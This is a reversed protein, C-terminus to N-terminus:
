GIRRALDEAKRELASLEQLAARRAVPDTRGSGWRRQIEALRDVKMRLSELRIQSKWSEIAPLAPDAGALKAELKEVRISRKLDEIIQKSAVSTRGKKGTGIGAAHAPSDLGIGAAVLSGGAVAAGLFTRRSSPIRESM